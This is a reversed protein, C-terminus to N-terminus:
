KGQKGVPTALAKEISWGSNLRWRLSDKNIDFEEAWESLCKTKRNFTFMRNNRKNRGQQKTTAWRCNSKCYNGDNNIRDISHNNSSREGMDALFNEFKMWRKCVIIGRGGYNNYQKRKPNECRKKMDCWSNYTATKQIGCHGHKTFLKSVMEKHLCGCSKTNSSRLSGCVVIVEQGCDCFCLWRHHGWKDNDVMKVVILRGFREGTLDIMM